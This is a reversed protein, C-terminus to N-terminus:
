AEPPTDDFRVADRYHLRFVEPGAETRVSLFHALNVPVGERVEESILGRVFELAEAQAAGEDAVEVGEDDALWGHSNCLDFFYRPM